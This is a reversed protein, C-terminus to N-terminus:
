PLQISPWVKMSQSDNVPCQSHNDNIDNIDNVDNVDNVTFRVPLTFTMSMMLMDHIHPEYSFHKEDSGSNNAM